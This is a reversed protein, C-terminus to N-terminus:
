FELAAWRVDIDSGSYNRISITTSTWSIGWGCSQVDGASDDGQFRFPTVWENVMDNVYNWRETPNGNNIKPNRIRLVWGGPPEQSMLNGPFRSRAVGICLSPNAGHAYSQVFPQDPAPAASVIGTGTAAVRAPINDADFILADLGATAADLGPQSVRFRYGSGYQGLIIRRAM